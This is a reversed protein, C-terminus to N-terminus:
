RTKNPKADTQIQGGSDARRRGRNSYTQIQEEDVETRIHRSSYAYIQRSSDARRKGGNPNSQKFIDMQIYITCRSNKVELTSLTVIFEEVDAKTNLLRDFYLEPETLFPFSHADSKTSINRVQITARSWDEKIKKGIEEVTMGMIESCNTKTSAIFVMHLRESIGKCANSLRQLQHKDNKISRLLSPQESKSILRVDMNHMKVELTSLKMTFEEVDDKANLLRDFYLWRTSTDDFSIRLIRYYHDPLHRYCDVVLFVYNELIGKFVDIKEMERSSIENFLQCFVFSNFILTNLVLDSDSNDHHFTAKGRTQLFWIVVFQFLSQGMINRWMVNTIFNGKRGVPTREILEDTTPETALALAGTLCASSFNLILAVVNVTLQFQVFKQINVYVSRGWKAVTVITSFNGDLIIVDVSEKAVETGAIGMALGIDTEQLATHAALKKVQFRLEISASIKEKLRQYPVGKWMQHVIDEVALFFKSYFKLGAHVQVQIKCCTAIRNHWTTAYGLEKRQRTTGNRYM